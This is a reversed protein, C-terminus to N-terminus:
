GPSTACKGVEVLFEEPGVKESADFIARVFAFLERDEVTKM